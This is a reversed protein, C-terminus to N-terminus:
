HSTIPNLSMVNQNKEYTCDAKQCCNVPKSIFLLLRSLFVSQRYAIYLYIGSRMQM